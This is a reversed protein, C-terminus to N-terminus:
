LEHDKADILLKGGVLCTVYAYLSKKAISKVVIARSDGRGRTENNTCAM